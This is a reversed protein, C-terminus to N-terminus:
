LKEMFVLDATPKRFVVLKSDDLKSEAKCYGGHKHQRINRVPAPARVPIYSFNILSDHWECPLINHFM